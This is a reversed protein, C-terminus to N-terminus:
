GLDARFGVEALRLGFHSRHRPGGERCRRSHGGLFYPDWRLALRVLQFINKDSPDGPRGDCSSGGRYAYYQESLSVMCIAKHYDSFGLIVCTQRVSASHLADAPLHSRQVLVELSLWTRCNPASLRGRELMVRSAPGPPGEWGQRQSNVPFVAPRTGRQM